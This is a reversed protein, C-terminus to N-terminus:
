YQGVVPAGLYFRSLIAEASQGNKAM